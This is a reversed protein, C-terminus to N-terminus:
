RRGWDLRAQKGGVRQAGLVKVEGRVAAGRAKVLLAAKIGREGRKVGGRIRAEREMCSGARAVYALVACRSQGIDKAIRQVTCCPM